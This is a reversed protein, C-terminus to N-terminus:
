QQGKSYFERVIKEAAAIVQEDADTPATKDMAPIGEQADRKGTPAPRAGARDKEVVWGYIPIRVGLLWLCGIERWIRKM